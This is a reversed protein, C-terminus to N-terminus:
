PPNRPFNPVAPDLMVWSPANETWVYMEPKFLEPSDLSSASVTQIEPWLEPRGFLTTSCKCCFGVHAKNGSSAIRTYETFTDGTISLSISQVVIFPWSAGGTLKQCDSCFCMGTKIIPTSVTYKVNGCFCQGTIPTM